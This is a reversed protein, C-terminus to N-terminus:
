LDAATLATAIAIRNWVNITVIAMLVHGTSKEGWRAVMQQWVRDSVGGEGLRTVEETFELAARERDTWLDAAQWDDQLAAIREETEGQKRADRTHMALCYSCGNIASALIKVLEYTTKDNNSRAYAELGLVPAYAMPLVKQLKMRPM